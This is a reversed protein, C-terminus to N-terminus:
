NRAGLTYKPASVAELVIAELELVSAWDIMAITVDFARDRAISLGRLDVETLLTLVPGGGVQPEHTLVLRREDPGSVSCAIMPTGGNEKDKLETLAGIRIRVASISSARCTFSVSAGSWSAKLSGTHTPTWRGSRRFFLPHSPSLELM